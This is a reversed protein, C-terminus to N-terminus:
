PTQTDHDTREIMIDLAKLVVHWENRLLGVWVASEYGSTTEILRLLIKRCHGANLDITEQMTSAKRAYWRAKRLDEPPTGKSDYRWLYKLTNGVCFTQYQALDICEYGINRDTYHRPHNVNDTM